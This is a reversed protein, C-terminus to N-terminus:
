PAATVAVFNASGTGAVIGTTANYTYAGILPITQLKFTVQSGGVDVSAATGKVITDVIAATMTTGTAAQYQAAVNQIQQATDVVKAKKVADNVGIVVGFTAAGLVAIAGVVTLIEILSFGARSKRALVKM